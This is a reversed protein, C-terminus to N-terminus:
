ENMNLKVRTKIVYKRDNYIRYCNDGTQYRENAQLCSPGPDGDSSVVQVDVVERFQITCSAM